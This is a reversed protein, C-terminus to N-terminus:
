RLDTHQSLSPAPDHLCRQLASQNKTLFRPSKAHHLSEPLNPPSRASQSTERSQMVSAIASAPSIPVESKTPISDSEAITHQSQPRAPLTPPAAVSPPEETTNMDQVEIYNAPVFGYEGDLGVLIWDPDSADFVDLVADESFSLEEDTQRTYEYIARARSVSEAEHVYNNPVLGTPEDEDDAGAKKKARWWGDDGNKELVYLLDGQHIALENDAQPTYDYIARYVGLFGM